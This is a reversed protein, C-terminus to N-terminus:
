GVGLGVGVVTGPVSYGLTTAARSPHSIKVLNYSVGRGKIDASILLFYM